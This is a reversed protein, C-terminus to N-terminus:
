TRAAKRARSVGALIRSAMDAIQDLTGEFVITKEDTFVVAHDDVTSLHSDTFGGPGVVEVRTTASAWEVGM